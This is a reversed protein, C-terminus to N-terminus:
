SLSAIFKQELKLEDSTSSEVLLNNKLENKVDLIM